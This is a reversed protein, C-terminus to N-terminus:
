EEALFRKNINIHFGELTAGPKLISPDIFSDKTSVIKYNADKGLDLISYNMIGSPSYQSAPKYIVTGSVIYLREEAIRVVLLEPCFNDAEKCTATHLVKEIKKFNLKDIAEQSGIICTNTMIQTCNLEKLYYSWFGVSNAAVGWPAFFVGVLFVFLLRNM